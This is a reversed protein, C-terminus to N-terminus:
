KSMSPRGPSGSSRQCTRCTTRSPRRTRGLRRGFDVLDASTVEPAEKDALKDAKIAELAQAKTRGIERRSAGLYLDILGGVTVAGKAAQAAELAGPDKLDREKRM